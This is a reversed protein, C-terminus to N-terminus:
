SPESSRLNSAQTKLSGYRQFFRKLVGRGALELKKKQAVTLQCSRDFEEIQSAQHLRAPKCAADPTSGYQRFVMTKFRDVVIEPWADAASSGTSGPAPGMTQAAYTAPGVGVVLFGIALLVAPLGGARLSCAPIAAAILQVQGPMRLPKALKM